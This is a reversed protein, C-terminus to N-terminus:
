ISTRRGTALQDNLCRRRLAAWESAGMEDAYFAIRRGHAGRALIRRQSLWIPRLGDIAGAPVAEAQWRGPVALWLVALGLGTNGFWYSACALLLGAELVVGLRRAGM